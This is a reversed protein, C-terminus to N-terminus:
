SKRLEPDEITTAGETGVVIPIDVVMVVVIAVVMAVVMALLMVVVMRFDVDHDLIASAGSSTSARNQPQLRM